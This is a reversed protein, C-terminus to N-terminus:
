EGGRRPFSILRWSLLVFLAFLLLALRSFIKCVRFLCNVCVSVVLQHQRHDDTCSSVPPIPMLPM